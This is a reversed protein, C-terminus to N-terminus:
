EAAEAKRDALEEVALKTCLAFLERILRARPSPSLMLQRESYNEGDQSEALAEAIWDRREDFDAGYTIAGLKLRDAHSLLIARANDGLHALASVLVKADIQRDADLRDFAAYLDLWRSRRHDDQEPPPAPDTVRERSAALETEDLTVQEPRIFPLGRM